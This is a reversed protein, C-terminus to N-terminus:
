MIAKLSVVPKRQMFRLGSSPTCAEWALSTSGHITRPHHDFLSITGFPKTRQPTVTSAEARTTDGLDLLKESPMQMAETEKLYSIVGHLLVQLDAISLVNVYPLILRIAIGMAVVGKAQSILPVLEMPIDGHRVLGILALVAPAFAVLAADVYRSDVQWADSSLDDDLPKMSFVYDFNTLLPGKRTYFHMGESAAARRLEAELGFPWGGEQDFIAVGEESLLMRLSGVFKDVSCPEISLGGCTVAAEGGRAGRLYRLPSAPWRCTCMVHAGFILDFSAGYTPSLQDLQTIDAAICDACTCAPPKLDSAVVSTAVGGAGIQESWRAHTGAGLELLSGLRLPTWLSPQPPSFTAQGDLLMSGYYEVRGRALPVARLLASLSLPM